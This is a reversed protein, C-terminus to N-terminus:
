DLSYRKWIKRLIYLILLIFFIYFAYINGFIFSGAKLAVTKAGAVIGKWDKINGMIAGSSSAFGEAHEADSAALQKNIFENGAARFEETKQFISNGTSKAIDTAQSAIDSGSAAAAQTTTAAVTKVPEPKAEVTLVDESTIEAASEVPKNQGNQSLSARTIKASIHHAGVSPIWSVAVVAGPTAAPLSFNASGVSKGDSYFTVAGAASVNGAKTVVTSVRVSAGEVIHTTSLWLPATAFSVAEDAKLTFPVLVLVVLLLLGVRM